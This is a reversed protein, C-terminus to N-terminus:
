AKFKKLLLPWQSTIGFLSSLHPFRRLRLRGFSAPEDCADEASHEADVLSADSCGFEPESPLHAPIQCAVHGMIMQLCAKGITCSLRKSGSNCTIMRRWHQQVTRICHVMSASVVGRKQRNVQNPDDISLSSLAAQRLGCTGVPVQMKGALRRAHAVCSILKGREVM